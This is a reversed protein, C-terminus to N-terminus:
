KLSHKSLPIQFLGSVLLIRHYRVLRCHYPSHVGRLADIITATQQLLSCGHVCHYTLIWKAKYHPVHPNVYEVGVEADEPQLLMGAVEWDGFNPRCTSSSHDTMSPSIVASHPNLQVWISLPVITGPLAM